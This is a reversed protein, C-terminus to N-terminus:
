PKSTTSAVSPRNPSVLTPSTGGSSQAASIPGVLDGSLSLQNRPEPNGQSRGIAGVLKLLEDVQVPKSIYGDMGAALCTERDGDLARATIAYIPIHCSEGERARIMATAEFGDMEPMQVDMLVVDFLETASLAVAEKGNCATTIRHGASKLLKVALLQSVADDEAVLISLPRHAETTKVCQEKIASVPEEKKSSSHIKQVPVKFRFTTGAGIQSQVDLTGGMLAILRSCIALGLGTGGACKNLPGDAQGFPEFVFRQNDASLGVGTDAVSIRLMVTDSSGPELTALLMISGASTTKVANQLLNVLVQRLRTCDGYLRAPIHPHAKFGIRLNKIVAEPQVMNVASEVCETFSFEANELELSGAEMRSFDLIERIIHMLWEASTRVSDLCERLEPKLETKLALDTFGIIGNMPTRIEYSMQTLFESKARNATDALEKLAAQEAFQTKGIRMRRRMRTYHVVVFVLEVLLLVVSISLATLAKGGENLLPHFTHQITTFV